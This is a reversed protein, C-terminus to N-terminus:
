VMEPTYVQRGVEGFKDSYIIVPAGRGAMWGGRSAYADKAAMTRHQEVTMLNTELKMDHHMHGLHAYSYKTRGFVGRFKAVFVDDVASPKRKHGHHFFLSTQGHEICYYTDASNDVTIRPEDDYFAAFMERLWAGGAPDHNADAMILHVRDYKATGVM